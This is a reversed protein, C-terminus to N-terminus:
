GVERGAAPLTFSFVSGKGWESEVWIRGGHAEVVQRCITLGLGTGKRRAMEKTEEVQFFKTFMRDIKDKPIGFGTDAVRVVIGGGEERAASLTVVGGEPTFKLANTALNMIVRQIQSAELPVEPLGAAAKNEMRVGLAQAQINCLEFVREVIPDVPGPKLDLRMTGSEFKSVDLITNILENLQAVSELVIKMRSVQKESAPGMMGQVFMDVYGGISALPSRLDHTVTELISKKTDDLERELTVDRMVILVGLVAAERRVQFSRFSFIGIRGGAKNLVPRELQAGSLCGAMLGVLADRMVPDEFVEDLTLGVVRQDSLGLATRAADNLFMFRGDLGIFAIGDQLAAVIGDLRTKEDLQKDVQARQFFAMREMMQNFGRAVQRVEPWGAEAVRRDFRQASVGDAASALALLPDSLARATFAAAGAALAAVVLLFLALSGRVEDQSVGVEAVPQLSVIRWNLGPVTTWAGIMGAAAFDGETASEAPVPLPQTGSAFGKLPTGDTGLLLM